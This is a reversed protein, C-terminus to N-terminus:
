SSRFPRSAVHAVGLINTGVFISIIRFEREPSGIFFFPDGWFDDVFMVM